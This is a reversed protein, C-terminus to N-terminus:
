KLFNTSYEKEKLINQVSEKVKSYHFQEKFNRIKGGSANRHGGGGSIEKAMLAVDIEGDARLSINGKGSIDFFFHFDRNKVLFGNGLISTNGLM